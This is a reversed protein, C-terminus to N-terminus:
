ATETIAPPNPAPAGVRHAWLDPFLTDTALFEPGYHASLARRWARLRPSPAFVERRALDYRSQCDRLLLRLGPLVIRRGHVQLVREPDVHPTTSAQGGQSRRRIPQRPDDIVLLVVDTPRGNAGRKFLYEFRLVTPLFRPLREREEMARGVEAPPRGAARLQDAEREKAALAWLRFTELAAPLLDSRTLLPSAILWGARRAAAYVENRFLLYELVAQSPRALLQRDMPRRIVRLGASALRYYSPSYRGRSPWVFDMVLFGDRALRAFRAYVNRLSSAAAGEVLAHAQPVTVVRLRAVRQLIRLQEDNLPAKM